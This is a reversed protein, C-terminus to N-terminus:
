FPPWSSREEAPDFIGEARTRRTPPLIRLMSHSTSISRLGVNNPFGGGPTRTLASHRLPEADFALAALMARAWTGKRGCAHVGIGDGELRVLVDANTRGKDDLRQHLNHFRYDSRAPLGSPMSFLVPRSTASGLCHLPARTLSSGGKTM